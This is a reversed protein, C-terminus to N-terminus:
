RLGYQQAAFLYQQQFIEKFPVLSHTEYFVLIAERYSVEDVSRYSLPACGQVLLVANAVLRATRKNGDEFPQIYSLGLLAILGATYADEARGIAVLLDGLAENIQYVNDLPRYSTGVIGVVQKRLGRGVKLGDVLLQHVEEIVRKKPTGVFLKRNALIFEFAKKHNLIMVAEGAAHGPAKIGESILRETDLLTYTNGEIRSSKWSLEIVFRALEKKALTDSLSASRKQYAATALDLKHREEDTFITTPMEPLLTLDFSAFAGRADPDKACHAHADIPALLEGRRTLIYGSARGARRSLVFGGAILVAMERKVTVLSIDGLAQQILTAPLGQGGRLIELIKGQRASLLIM